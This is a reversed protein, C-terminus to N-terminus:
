GVFNTVAERPLAQTLLDAAMENTPIFVPCNEWRLRRAFGSGTVILHKLRGMHEPHKVRYQLSIIWTSDHPKNTAHWHRLPLQSALLAGVLKVEQLWRQKLQQFHSLARFTRLGVSLVVQVTLLYRHPAAMISTEVMTQMQSPLSSHLPFRPLLLLINSATTSHVVSTAFCISLPKGILWALTPTLVAFYEWRLLSIQAPVCALYLLAGTAQIYPLKHMEEEEAPTQPCQTKSLKVNPDMPTTVANSDLMSFRSLVEIAYARQDICLKRNPRDRTVRVGLLGTTPGLHRLKFHKRLEGIVNMIAPRSKSAITMDDVHVPIIIRVADRIYVYVCPDSTIRTFGLLLFVEHMKKHWLYASQKLGYLGKHLLAVPPGDGPLQATNPPVDQPFGDPFRLYLEADVVGNLFASSIDVSELHMDEIAALALITRVANWRATPAFTEDFDIGPRQSFGQAVVRAKFRDVAGDPLHKVKFVWRSGIAKKGAPLYVVRWTGNVKLANMEESMAKYWETSDESSMAERYTRPNTDHAGVKFAHEGALNACMAGYGGLDVGHEVFARGALMLAEDSATNLRFAVEQEGHVDAPAYTLMGSHNHSQHPPPALPPPALSPPVLPPPPALPSEKAAQRRVADYYADNPNWLRRTRQPSTRNSSSSCHHLPAHDVAGAPDPMVGVVEPLM